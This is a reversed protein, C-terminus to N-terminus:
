DKQRKQEAENVVEIMQQLDHPVVIPRFPLQDATRKKRREGGRVLREKLSGARLRVIPTVAVWGDQPLFDAARLGPSTTRRPAKTADNSPVLNPM